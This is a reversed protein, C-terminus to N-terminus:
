VARKTCRSMAIRARLASAAHWDPVCGANLVGVGGLGVGELKGVDAMKCDSFM